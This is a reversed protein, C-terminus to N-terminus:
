PRRAAVARHGRARPDDFRDRFRQAGDTRRAHLDDRAHRPAERWWSGPFRVHSRAQQGIPRSRAVTARLWPSLIVLAVMWRRDNRLVPPARAAANVSGSSRRIACAAASNGVIGTGSAIVVASRSWRIALARVSIPRCPMSAIM